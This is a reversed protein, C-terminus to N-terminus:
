AEGGRQELWYRATAKTDADLKDADNAIWRIYDTPLDIWRSHKHKGFNVKTQILPMGTWEILQGVSTEDLMLRLLHATVFTDPGARHAPLALDGLDTLGKWYRLVQNKHSPADPWLRVACKLTCIWRHDGGGFFFKEFEINHAVFVDEEGMGGMLMRCAETPSPCGAVDQDRIHHVAMTEPPISHGPDVLTSVPDAIIDTEADLDCFAAECIAKRTDSPLGTTEFDIVRFKM